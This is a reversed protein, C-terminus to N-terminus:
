WVAVGFGQPDDLHFWSHPLMQMFTFFRFHFSDAAFIAVGRNGRVSYGSPYGISLGCAGVSM